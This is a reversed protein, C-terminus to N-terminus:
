SRKWYNSYLMDYNAAIERKLSEFESLFAETNGNAVPDIKHMQALVYDHYANTHRGCHPIVIKNWDDDLDLGYKDTIRKFQPTYKTNIPSAIHHTQLPKEPKNNGTSGSGFGNSIIYGTSKKVYFKECDPTESVEQPLVNDRFAYGTFYKVFPKLNNTEAYDVKLINGKMEPFPECYCIVAEPEIRRLMENYGQMFFDKEKRVGLTSLAVVSNKEVGDFCYWYSQPLGWYVTPIVTVGQSQLYAGCWRSRFTNHIQVSVPMSYYASFQPSLVGRYRSLKELHSEPSKWMTEFKYDDLFFHIFSQANVKDDPKIKDYGTLRIDGLDINQRRIVPMDFVGDSEFQNRLFLPDSRFEESTLM